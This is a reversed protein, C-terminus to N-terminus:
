LFSQVLILFANAPRRDEGKALSYKYKRITYQQLVLNQDNAFDKM